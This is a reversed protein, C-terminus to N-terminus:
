RARYSRVSALYRAVTRHLFREADVVILVCVAALPLEVFAAELAAEVLESGGASTVVDFWADCALMTGTCAALPVLWESRRAIAWATAAFSATLGADFGVWAIDYHQTVHRSPLSFTLWLTWPVLVITALTLLPVVLRPLPVLEERVEPEVPM